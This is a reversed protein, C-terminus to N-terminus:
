KKKDGGGMWGYKWTCSKILSEDFVVGRKLGGDRKQSWWREKLIM